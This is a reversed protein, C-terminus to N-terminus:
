TSCRGQPDACFAFRGVGPIDTPEMFVSGGGDESRSRWTARRRRRRCLRALGAADGADAPVDEHDGRRRGEATAALRYDMDPMGAPRVTWGLMPAYFAQAADPDPTILEYWIFDGHHNTM